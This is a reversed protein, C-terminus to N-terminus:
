RKYMNFTINNEDSKPDQKLLDKHLSMNDIVMLKCWESANGNVGTIFLRKDNDLLIPLIKSM